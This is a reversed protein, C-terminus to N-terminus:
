RARRRLGPIARSGIWRLASPGGDSTYDGAAGRALGAPAGNAIVLGGMLASTLSGALILPGVGPLWVFVAGVLLGFIGGVWARTRAASKAVDCPTVFGPVKKETGLDKTILFVDQIPFGGQGLKRVAEEAVDVTPYLRVVSSEQNM